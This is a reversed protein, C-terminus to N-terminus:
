RNNTPYGRKDLEKRMFEKEDRQLQNPKANDQIMAKRLDEHGPSRYGQDRQEDYFKTEEEHAAIEGAPQDHKGEHVLAAAVGDVDDTDDDSITIVGNKHLGHEEPPLKGFRLTGDERKKELIAIIKQGEERRGYDSNKIRWIALMLLEDPTDNGLRVTPEGQLIM